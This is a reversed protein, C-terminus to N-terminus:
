NKINVFKYIHTKLDEEIVEKDIKRFIRYNQSHKGQNCKKMTLGSHCYCFDRIKLKRGNMREYLLKAILNADKVGLVEQYAELVGLPNHSYEEKFYKKHIEYYSNNELYKILIENFFELLSNIKTKLLIQAKAKTTFCLSGTDTYIHRDAKKPIRDDIEYVRPFLKPYNDLEIKLEYDDDDTVFIKGYLINNQEDYKLNKYKLLVEKIEENIDM